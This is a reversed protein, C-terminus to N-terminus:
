HMSKKWGSPSRVHNGATGAKRRIKIALHAAVSDSLKAYDEIQGISEIAEQPVKKNLKVYSSFQSVVTRALAEIKAKTRM